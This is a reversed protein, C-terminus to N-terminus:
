VEALEAWAAMRADLEAHLRQYEQGLRAVEGPDAPPNELARELAAIRAETEEIEHELQQMRQLRRRENNNMGARQRPREEAPRPQAEVARAPAQEQAALWAKYESYGGDFLRLTGAEPLVEWIQTALADILYRDHSVLLITGGFGALITQLAEQAALDLHNTPEDLLLLNAGQLALCAIALRGREGGSLVGVEKFVDDGTFLFTALYKRVEPELMNPVTHQIEQILTWDDHLGEHAQAFYGVQVSGGLDVRGDLPPIKDLLTKLFTTKGAGNPGVIAMLVGRPVTLDVDWLVPKTHYAVTLDSVEVAAVGEPAREQKDTGNM